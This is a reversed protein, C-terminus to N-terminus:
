NRISCSRRGVKINHNYWLPTGLFDKWCSSNYALSLAYLASYTDKWFPNNIRELSMKIYDSGYTLCNKYLPYITNHIIFLSLFHTGKLDIFVNM